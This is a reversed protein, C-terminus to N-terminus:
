LDVSDNQNELSGQIMGGSDLANSIIWQFFQERLVRKTRGIRILPFEPRDMLTYATPKSIRLIESIECATLILPYTEIGNGKM